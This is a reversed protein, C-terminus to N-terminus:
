SSKEVDCARM